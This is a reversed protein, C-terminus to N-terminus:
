KSRQLTDKLFKSTIFTTFSRPMLNVGFGMLKARLGPLVFACNKRLANISESVVSAASDRAFGTVTGPLRAVGSFETDVPGPCVTLVKVNYSRLEYRLGMSHFLNFAKTAAYTSMFPLAQFGAISSVSIIAGEKRAKMAPIVAHALRMTSIVNLQVMQVEDAIPLDEFQGFSGRGANNILIDVRTSRIHELVEEVGESAIDAAIFSASGERLLNLQAVEKALLEERRAVLCVNAGAAHFQRGFELGIGSSAGTILVKKNQFDNM